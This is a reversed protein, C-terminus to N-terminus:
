KKNKLAAEAREKLTPKKTESAKPLLEPMFKECFENKVAIFSIPRYEIKPEQTKDVVSKTKTTGDEATVTVKKRPYVKYATKQSTVELLWELQGNEECYSFIFDQNINKYNM